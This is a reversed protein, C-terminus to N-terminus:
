AARPFGTTDNRDTMRVAEEIEVSTVSISELEAFVRDVQETTPAAVVLLRRALARIWPAIADRALEITDAADNTRALAALLLAAEFEAATRADEIQIEDLLTRLRHVAKTRAESDSVLTDILGSKMALRKAERIYRRITSSALLEFAAESLIEDSLM